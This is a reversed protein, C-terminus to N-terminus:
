QVRENRDRCEARYGFADQQDRRDVHQEARPMRQVYGLESRGEIVDRTPAPADVDHGAVRWSFRAHEATVVDLVVSAVLHGVLERGHHATQPTGRVVQPQM